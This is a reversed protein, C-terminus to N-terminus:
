RQLRGQRSTRALSSRALSIVIRWLWCATLYRARIAFPASAVTMGLEFKLRLVLTRIYRQGVPEEDFALRLYDFGDERHRESGGGIAFTSIAFFGPVVLTVIPRFVESQFVATV